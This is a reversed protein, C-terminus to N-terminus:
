DLLSIFFSDPYFFTLQSLKLILNQKTVNFQLPIGTFCPNDAAPTKSLLLSFSSHKHQRTSINSDNPIVSTYLSLCPLGTLFDTHNPIGSTAEVKHFHHQIHRMLFLYSWPWLLNSSRATPYYTIVCTSQLLALPPEQHKMLEGRSQYSSIFSTLTEPCLM